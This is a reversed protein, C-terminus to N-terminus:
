YRLFKQVRHNNTDSVYLNLQNDVTVEMPVSLLSANSGSLGTVGAITLGDLQGVPFFQIRHNSSDPVYLNGIVDVALGEPHNLEASTNGSTSSVNGALRIWESTGIIWRVVSNRTYDSMIVSNTAAEFHLGTPYCIEAKAYECTTGGAVIESTGNCFYRVIRLNGTDAIYLTDSKEDISIGQPFYLRNLASGSSGTSISVFVTHIFYLM